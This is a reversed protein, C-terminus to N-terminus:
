AGAADGGLKKLLRDAMATHQAVVTEAKTVASKLQADTTTSEETKFADLAAHHDTDMDSVYQKDFDAGALGQLQDLLQRHEPSLATAPMVGMQDAFPKMQEELRRHDAVMTRAFTKVQPDTAETLALKSLSIETLDGQSATALFQKDQDTGQARATGMGAAMAACGVALVSMARIRM